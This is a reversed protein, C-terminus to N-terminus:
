NKASKLANWLVCDTEEWWYKGKSNNKEIIMVHEVKAFGVEKTLITPFSDPRIRLTKYNENM